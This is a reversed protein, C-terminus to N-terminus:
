GSIVKIAAAVNPLALIIVVVASAIGVGIGIKMGLNRAAEIFDDLKDDLGKIAKNTEERAEKTEHKHDDFSKTLNQIKERLVAVAVNAPETDKNM